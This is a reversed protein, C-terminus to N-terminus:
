TTRLHSATADFSPSCSISLTARTSDWIHHRRNRRLCKTPKLIACARNSALFGSNLELEHFPNTSLTDLSILRVEYLTMGFSYVDSLPRTREELEQSEIIIEPAMWRVDQMGDKTNAMTLDCPYPLTNMGIDTLLPVVRGM